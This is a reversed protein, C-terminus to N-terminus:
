VDSESVCFGFLELGIDPVLLELDSLQACVEDLPGDGLQPESMESDDFMGSSGFEFLLPGLWGLDGVGFPLRSFGDIAAAITQVGEPADDLCLKFAVTLSDHDFPTDLVLDDVTVRFGGDGFAEVLPVPAGESRLCTTWREMQGALREDGSSTSRVAFFVVLAVVFVIGVAALVAPILWDPQEPEPRATM